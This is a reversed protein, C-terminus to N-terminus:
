ITLKAFICLKNNEITDQEVKVAFESGIGRVQLTKVLPKLNDDPSWTKNLNFEGTSHFSSRCFSSSYGVAPRQSIDTDPQTCHGNPQLSGQM